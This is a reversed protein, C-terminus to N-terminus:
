VVEYYAAGEACPKCLTKGDVLVERADMIRDGCAECTAHGSPPGPLDHPSLTVRVERARYLEDDSYAAYFEVPDTGKPCMPMDPAPSARFAKGSKMDYMTVANKGYDIVKLRRRGVTIGTVAYIADAPCRAMEAFAILDRDSRPDDIGLRECALRAMRVGHVMGMCLHGHYAVAAAMDEELTTM